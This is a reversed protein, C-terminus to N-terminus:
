RGDLLRFVPELLYFMRRRRSMPKGVWKTEAYHHTPDVLCRTCVGLIRREGCRACFPRIRTITTVVAEYRERQGAITFRLPEGNVADLGKLPRPHRDFDVGSGRRVILPASADAFQLEFLANDATCIQWTSGPAGTLYLTTAITPRRKM